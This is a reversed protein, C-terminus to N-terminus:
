EGFGARAAEKKHPFTGIRCYKSRTQSTRRSFYRTRLSQLRLLCRVNQQCQLELVWVYYQPQLSRLIPPSTTIYIGPAAITTKVRRYKLSFPVVVDIFHATFTAILPLTWSRLLCQLRDLAPKRHLRSLTLERLRQCVGLYRILSQYHGYLPLIIISCVVLPCITLVFYVSIVLTRTITCHM